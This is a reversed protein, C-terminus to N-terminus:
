STAPKRHTPGVQRAANRIVGDSWLWDPRVTPQPSLWSRRPVVINTEIKIM